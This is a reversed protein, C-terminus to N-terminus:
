PTKIGQHEIVELDGDAVACPRLAITELLLVVAHQHKQVFALVNFDTLAQARMRCREICCVFPKACIIRERRQLFAAKETHQFRFSPLEAYFTMVLRKRQVSRVACFAGSSKESDADAVAIDIEVESM